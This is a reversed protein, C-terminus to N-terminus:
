LYIQQEERRLDINRNQLEEIDEELGGQGETMKKLLM